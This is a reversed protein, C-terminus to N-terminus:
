LGPYRTLLDNGPVHPEGQFNAANGFRTRCTAFRKDCGQRLEILDGAECAYAPPETLHILDAASQLGASQLGSNGGSLFRAGGYGFANPTPEAEAMRLAQPVVVEVIRVLASRGAM